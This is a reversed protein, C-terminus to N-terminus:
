SGLRLVEADDSLELFHESDREAVHFQAVEDSIWRWFVQEKWEGHSCPRIKKEYGTGNALMLAIREGCYLVSFLEALRPYEDGVERLDM